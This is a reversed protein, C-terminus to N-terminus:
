PAFRMQTSRGTLRELASDRIVGAERARQQAAELTMGEHKVLHAIWLQASRGGSACHLLVKGSRSALAAGLADVDAPEYGEDGGLPIEVYALGLRKALAAGSFPTTETATRCNIIMTVGRDALERVQEATPQGGIFVDGDAHLTAGPADGIEVPLESRASWETWSGEYLRVRPWELVGKLYAALLTAERGTGCYVITDRRADLGADKLLKEIEARPRLMAQNDARVLQTWDVNVAGPIHGNRPWVKGEGRFLRPPRADILVGEDFESTRRADDLSASVGEAATGAWPTVEYSAYEQSVPMSGRWAEFGGDLVMVRPHGAKVLAYAAMTAALPDDGDSYVLVPTDVRVGAREFVRGLDAASLYVVPQGSVSERLTEDELHVAGPVHGTVFKAFPRTDLVHVRRESVLYGAHSVGVFELRGSAAAQAAREAAPADNQALTVQGGGASVLAVVACRGLRSCNM